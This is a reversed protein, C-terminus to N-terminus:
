PKLIVEAQPVLHVPGLLGAPILPTNKRHYYWNVFALRNTQPRLQNKLFWDPYAKLARGRDAGRDTGFEFDPSFQEDGVLRNHWTNAVALELSNEGPKLASTIDRVFPPHWVVGINQGNVKITVLSCVDGLDLEVRKGEALLSPAVKVTTSYTATGSFYKVAADESESLSMLVPLEIKGSAGVAPVLDVQWPGVVSVAAAPKLEFPMRRGSAFVATGSFNANASILPCGQADSSLKWDGSSEISALRDASIARSRFVVFVSKAAGLSLDVETRGNKEFWLPALQMTDNEADWLEPQMGAVRFSATFKASKQNVNAVFFIKTEGDQRAAIRIGDLKPTLIQGIPAINLEALAAGVDGLTFLKGSGVQRISSKDDGWLKEALRRVEDDCQPYSALSPSKNPKACVVIAGETLLKKIQQVIEPQLSGNHPFSIFAYKRGSPLVIQGGEVRVEKLMRQAIVDGDGQQTSVSVFDSPTEGRQLVAQVRGLYRFFEKGPEFWTQNRGFHTGWWGMGMGPKYRDDFPQHVWHHLIMRNVGSAFQADGAAKLFAPTETWKSVGPSGTFAEAGVVKIGAARAAAVVLQNAGSVRGSWFETMPLDVLAAGEVTSFPGGYPEQQFKLGATHIMESAPEWGNDYFMASIVDRYDWDFRATQEASGIVRPPPNKGGNNVTAGMTVLWPLPDYGKRKQFEERFSPTWNQNGAEYSDILLHRFSKGVLSGLHEKIPNIVNEWHFKTQTLSMKDAELVKGILDDPTPQPPRGTSAHALRYVMWQGPPVSWRLEGSTSLCKTLDHVDALTLNTQGAPVALVAIDRFYSLTRGSHGWGEDATFKPAAINTVVEAGGSIMVSTWVLRQMSREEDIWPGGTASYGVCNHLGIELGLRAAEAAAHRLAEWYKPSRYTQDPWPNNLTPSHSEQVASSLNFITAGGIGSAKMAELDKTIGEKSFNPGMWHWWVYPRVTVPPNHFDEEITGARSTLALALLLCNM